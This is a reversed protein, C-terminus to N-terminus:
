RSSLDVVTRRGDANTEYVYYKVPVPPATSEVLRKLDQLAFLPCECKLFTFSRSFPVNLVGNV